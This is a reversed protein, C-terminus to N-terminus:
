LTGIARRAAAWASSLDLYLRADLLTRLHCDGEVMDADVHLVQISREPEVGLDEVERAPKSQTFKSILKPSDILGRKSTDLVM